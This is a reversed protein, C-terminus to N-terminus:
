EEIAFIDNLYITEVGEKSIVKQRTTDICIMDENKYLYAILFQERNEHLVPFIAVERDDIMFLYRDDRKATDEIEEVIIKYETRNNAEDMGMYYIGLGEVALIIIMGLAIDIVGYRVKSSEHSSTKNSEENGLKQSIRGFYIGNLNFMFIFIFFKFVLWLYKVWMKDRVLEIFIDCININASILVIGWFVILEIGWFVFLYSINRKTYIHYTLYNSAVLIGAIGIYGLVYYITGASEVDIYMMDIKLANCYGWKYFFYFGKILFIATAVIASLIAIITTANEFKMKKQLKKM